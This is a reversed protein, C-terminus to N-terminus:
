RPDGLLLQVVIEPSRELAHRALDHRSDEALAVRRQETLERRNHIPCVVIESAGEKNLGAFLLEAVRIVSNRDVPQDFAVSVSAANQNAFDHVPHGRVRMNVQEGM